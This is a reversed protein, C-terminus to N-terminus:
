CLVLRLGGVIDPERWDRLMEAVWTRGRLTMRRGIGGTRSWGLISVM